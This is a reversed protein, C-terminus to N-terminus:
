VRVRASTDDTRTHTRPSEAPDRLDVTHGRHTTLAKGRAEPDDMAMSYITGGAMLGIGVIMWVTGVFMDDTNWATLFGGVAAIIGGVIAIATITRRIRM